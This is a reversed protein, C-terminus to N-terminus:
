LSLNGAEYILLGTLLIEVLRLWHKRHLSPFLLLTPDEEVTRARAPSLIESERGQETM